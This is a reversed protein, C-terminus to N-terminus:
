RLRELVKVFEAPDPRERVDKSRNAYRIIGESDIVVSVPRLTDAGYDDRYDAPVGEPHVIGLERAATLDPDMWFTFDVDFLEAVRRTTQQPKPVVLILRAGLESIQRYHQTLNEVQASCFPCWNGRLFVLVAPLGRLDPPGAPEGDETQVSFEPIRRGRVLRESAKEGPRRLLWFVLGAALLLVVVVIATVTATDNLVQEAEALRAPCHPM